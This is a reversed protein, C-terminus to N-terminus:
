ETLTDPAIKRRLRQEKFAKRDSKDKPDLGQAIMQKKMWGPLVGRVYENQPNEPDVYCVYSRIQGDARKKSTVFSIIDSVDHGRSLILDKVEKVVSKRTQHRRQQLARQLAARDHDVHRLRTQIEDLSLNELTESNSM